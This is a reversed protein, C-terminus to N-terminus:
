LGPISAPGYGRPAEVHLGFPVRRSEVGDLSLILSYRGPRMLPLAPFGFAFPVNQEEGGSLQPPRGVNFAMQGGVGEGPVNAGPPLEPVDGDETVLAFSLVHEENTSNWPVHVLGAVSFSVVYPPPTGAPVIVRDINAGSVFLKDGALQAFDCLMVDLYM